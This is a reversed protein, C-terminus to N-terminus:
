NSFRAHEPAQARCCSVGSCHSAQLLLSYGRERCGSFAWACCHLGTCGVVFAIILLQNFSVSLFLSHCKSLRRVERCFYHFGPVERAAWRVLTQWGTCPVHAQARVWSSGARQPAASGTLQLRLAHTGCSRLGAPRSGTNRALLLWRLSPSECQLSPSDSIGPAVSAWAFCHPRLM